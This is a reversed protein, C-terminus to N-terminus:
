CPVLSSFDGEADELPFARQCDADTARCVFASERSGRRYGLSAVYPRCRVCNHAADAGSILGRLRGSVVGDAIPAFRYAQRRRAALDLDNHLSALITMAVDILPELRM